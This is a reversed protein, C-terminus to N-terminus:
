QKVGVIDRVGGVVGNLDGARVYGTNAEDLTQFTETLLNYFESEAMVGLFENLTMSDADGGEARAKNIMSTLEEDTKAARASEMFQRSGEMSLRNDNSTDSFRFVSIFEDRQSKSLKDVLLSRRAIEGENGLIPKTKMVYEFGKAVQRIQKFRVRLELIDADEKTSTVPFPPEYDEPLVYRENIKEVIERTALRKISLISSERAVTM